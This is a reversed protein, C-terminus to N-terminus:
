LFDIQLIIYQNMPEKDRNIGNQGDICNQGDVFIQIVSRDDKHKSIVDTLKTEVSMASFSLKVLLRTIFYETITYM